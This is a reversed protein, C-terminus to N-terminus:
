ASVMLGAVCVCVREGGVMQGNSPCQLASGDPKSSSMSRQPVFSRWNSVHLRFDVKFYIFFFFFLM